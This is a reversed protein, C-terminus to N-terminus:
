VVNRAARGGPGPKSERLIHWALAMLMPTGIDGWFCVEHLAGIVWTAFIGTWLLLVTQASHDQSIRLSGWTSRLLFFSYSIVFLSFLVTGLPGTRLLFAGFTSHVHHKESGAPMRYVRGLGFGVVSATPDGQERYHQVVGALEGMRGASAPDWEGARGEFEERSHQWRAGIFTSARDYVEPSDERIASTLVYIVLAVLGVFILNRSRPRVVLAYGTIYLFNFWVTRKLTLVGALVFISVLLVEYWRRREKLLIYAFPFGFSGVSLLNPVESFVISYFILGVEALGIVLAIRYVWQFIRLPNHIIRHTLIFYTLPMVALRFADGILYTMPARRVLGVLAWLPVLLLITLLVSEHLRLRRTRPGTVFRLIGPMFAALAAALLLTGSWVGIVVYATRGKLFKVPAGTIVPWFIFFAHYCGTTFLGFLLLKWELPLRERSPTAEKTPSTSSFQPSGTSSSDPGVPVPPATGSENKESATM